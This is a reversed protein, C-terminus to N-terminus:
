RRALPATAAELWARASDDLHPSLTARVRAHYGDLWALADPALLAPEILRRDIPALTITEFGHMPREGGDIPEAPTVVILNEIRIGWQGAKYFGPENSLIMGAELPTTGLKSLRQPGEHVSLYSGVGHGTGHDFDLGAKWLMLRALPDLQAGSTGAPFRATAIAIHGALVRTNRDRMEATPAGVIVTRTIDTTGDEYQAGSDILFIEGPAIKRNSRRNVRYHPIAANPGAASITDFSIEKLLGTEARFRELAEAAEIEDVEGSPAAADLWALFRTVAVGDRVQAARAGDLEVANKVAKPLLVPDQGEVLTAGAAALRRCLGAATLDPDVLVKAKREGLLELTAELRGPGYVEAVEELTARVENSLKRGDLFVAPREGRRLVAFALAVPNHAVDSGRLNLLWAVSDPQTLLAADLGDAALREDLRAIKDAADVGAFAAPHLSVPGVPPAPRDRWIADVPNEAMAVFAAGKAECAAEYRRVQALTLLMPDYGIRMGAGVREGLWRSPPTETVHVPTFAGPDVQERVQLTYRGDVFVAAEEALVVAIGASGTFGTLWALREASPAVYEGQHEDARPVVFGDFGEARLRARLAALRAPGAATESRDDFSQFM